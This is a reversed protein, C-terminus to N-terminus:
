GIAVLSHNLNSLLKLVPSPLGVDHLKNLDQWRFRDDDMVQPNLQEVRYIIPQIMLHYHSFTHKFESLEEQYDTEINLGYIFQELEKKESSQPLSWLGGWIGSSPRKELLVRDQHHIIAFAAQKVPKKTKPKPNPYDHPNGQKLAVCHSNVPCEVCLPNRRTCITAGMDMMAQNYQAVEKKPTLKEAIEWLSNHVATKGPWGNVAYFRCLVRKVNGDLITAPQGTSLSHIAGATSRGIGPLSELEDVNDPWNGQYDNILTQACKHLNRARTYYGLGTWLTLVDDVSAQALAELTPFRDMFRQYYPIVTAVQTQQLMIESIWVRYHTKNHQWPLDKRGKQQYFKLIASQFASPEM